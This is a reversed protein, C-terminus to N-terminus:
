IIKLSCINPASSCSISRQELAGKTVPSSAKAPAGPGNIGRIGPTQARWAASAFALPVFPIRRDATWDDTLPLPSMNSRRLPTGGDLAWSWQLQKGLMM